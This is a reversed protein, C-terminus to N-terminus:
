ETLPYSEPFNVHFEILVADDETVKGDLDADGYITVKDNIFEGYMYGVYGNDFLETNFASIGVVTSEGKASPNSGQYILRVSEDENIRVIKWYIDDGAKAFNFATCNYNYESANNCEELTAYEKISSDVNSFYGVVTSLDKTYKGFKVYNNEVDGRFYYTVKNDVTNKSTYYLGKTGDEKSTKSFDLGEDNQAKNDKLIQESLTNSRSKTSTWYTYKSLAWSPENFKFSENLNVNEGFIEEMNPLRVSSANIWNEELEKNKEGAQEYNFEGDLVDKSILLLKDSKSNSDKMVYFEKTDRDNLNIEVIDGAKYEKYEKASVPLINVMLLGAIIIWAIIKKM